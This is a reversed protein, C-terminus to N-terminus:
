RIEPPACTGGPTYRYIAVGLVTVSEEFIAVGPEGDTWVPTM